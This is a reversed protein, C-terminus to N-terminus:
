HTLIKHGGKKFCYLGDVHHPDDQEAMHVTIWDGNKLIITMGNYSVSIIKVNSTKGFNEYLSVKENFEKRTPLKELKIIENTCKNICQGVQESDSGFKRIMSGCVQCVKKTKRDGESLAMM